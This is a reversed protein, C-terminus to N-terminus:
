GSKQGAPEETRDLMSAAQSAVAREERQRWWQEALWVGLYVIGVYAFGVIADIAYHEGTYILTISMALPYAILLPLWRKSVKTFFFAVACLSFASHLSPMAAVPNSLAQGANLLKGASHLGIAEWGRGSMREIHESIYGYQSAWWPPAAPYLFYTALGLATLTFWRRMFSAWMPRSRLWLVTALTLSVVFHSFYVFSAAVDYWHIQGPDYFHQQLWLTPLTGGFLFEDAHIMPTVHPSSLNDAFGRSFDYAVLVVVVPLWDRAFRLHNRWPKDSNWAITALWLWCFAVMPDTPLGVFVWWLVFGVVYASVAIVRRSVRRGPESPGSAPAPDTPTTESEQLAM